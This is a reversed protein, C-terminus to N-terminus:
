AILYSLIRIVRHSVICVERSFAYSSRLMTFQDYKQNRPVAIISSLKRSSKESRSLSVIRVHTDKDEALLTQRPAQNGFAHGNIQRCETVCICVRVYLLFLGPNIESVILFIQISVWMRPWKDASKRDQPNFIRKENQRINVIRLLIIHMLCISTM